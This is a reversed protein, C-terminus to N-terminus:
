AKTVLGRTLADALHGHTVRSRPSVYMPFDKWLWDERKSREIMEAETPERFNEEPHEPPQPPSIAGRDRSAPPGQSLIKVCLVTFLLFGFIKAVFRLRPMCIQWKSPKRWFSEQKIPTAEGGVPLQLDPRELPHGMEASTITLRRSM